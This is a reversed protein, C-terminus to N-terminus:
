NMSLRITFTTILPAFALAIVNMALLVWYFGSLSHGEILRMTAQVGIMLTPIYLPLSIISLLLGSRKLGITLAVCIAGIFSLLPTGLLLIFSVQIAQTFNFYLMMGLIPTALVLPLATLIWHACIKAFIIVIPASTGSILLQELSGDEYDSKLLRDMILMNSLLAGIWLIAPSVARLIKENDLGLGLPFLSVVILFFIIPSIIEARHHMGLRIDRKLIAFFANM